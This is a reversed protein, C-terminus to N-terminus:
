VDTFLKGRKGLCAAGEAARRPVASYPQCVADGHRSRAPRVGGVIKETHSNFDAFVSSYSVPMPATPM